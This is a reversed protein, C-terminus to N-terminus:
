LLGAGHAKILLDDMNQDGFGINRLSEQNEKLCDALEKALERMDTDAKDPAGLLERFAELADTEARQLDDRDADAELWRLFNEIAYLLRRMPPEKTKEGQVQPIFKVPQPMLNPIRFLGPPAEGHSNGIVAYLDQYDEIELLRGDALIGRGAFARIRPFEIIKGVPYGTIGGDRTIIYSYVPYVPQVDPAPRFLAVLDHESEVNGNFYKGCEMFPTGDEAQFPYVPHNNKRVITVRKGTRDVYTGGIELQLPQSTETTNM